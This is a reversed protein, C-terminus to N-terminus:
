TYIYVQKSRTAATYIIARKDPCKSLNLLDLYVQGYTSGQAKHTTSIAYFGVEDWTKILDYYIGWAKLRKAKQLQTDRLLISDPSLVRTEIQVGFDDVCLVCYHYYDYGFLNIVEVYHDAIVTLETGSDAILDFKDRSKSSPSKRFLPRKCSLREGIYFPISSDGYVTDRVWNCWNSVSGNTWTILKTL